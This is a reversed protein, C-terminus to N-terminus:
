TQDYRWKAGIPQEPLPMWFLCKARTGQVDGSWNGKYQYGIGYDQVMANVDGYAFYEYWVLVAKGKEPLMEDVSIWRYGYQNENEYKDSNALADALIKNYDPNLKM